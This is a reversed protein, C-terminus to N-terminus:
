NFPRNESLGLLQNCCSLSEKFFSVPTFHLFTSNETTQFVSTLLAAQFQLSASPPPTMIPPSMHPPPQTQMWRGERVPKGQQRIAELSPNLGRPEGRDPGRKSPPALPPHPPPSGLASFLPSSGRESEDEGDANGVGGWWCGGRGQLWVPVNAEGPGSQRSLCM